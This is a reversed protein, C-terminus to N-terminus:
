SLYRKELTRVMRAYRASCRAFRGNEIDCLCPSLWRDWIERYIRERGGDLDICAVIGPAVDYYEEVLRRGEESEAMYTDRFRRFATLEYCDDPKGFSGCVATTIFCMKGKRFGAVMDKYSGKAIKSRPHLRIWEEVLIDALRGGMSLRQEQVMPIVYIALITKYQDLRIARANKSKLAPDAEVAQDMAKVLEASLHRMFAGGGDPAVLCYRDLAELVPRCSEMYQEFYNVYRDRRFYEMADLHDFLIERFHLRAYIENATEDYADLELMRGILEEAKPDEKEYLDLLVQALPSKEKEERIPILEEMRLVAGCYMCSFQRLEEPISLKGGCKPCKGEVNAM